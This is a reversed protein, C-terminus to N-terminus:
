SAFAEATARDPRSPRHAAQACGRSTVPGATSGGARGHAACDIEETMADPPARGSAPRHASGSGYRSPACLNRRPLGARDDGSRDVSSVAGDGGSTGSIMSAVAVIGDRAPGLAAKDVIRRPTRARAPNTRGRKRGAITAICSAATAATSRARDSITRTSGSDADRNPADAQRDIQAAEDKGAQVGPDLPLVADGDQDHFAPDLAIRM